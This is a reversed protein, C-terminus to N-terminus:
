TPAVGYVSTALGTARTGLKRAFLERLSHLEAESGVVRKPLYYAFRKSYYLLFFAETEAADVFSDWGLRISSAGGTITVGSDSFEYVQPGQLSPTERWARRLQWRMLWTSAPQLLLLVLAVAALPWLARWDRGLLLILLAVGGMLPWVAWELWAFRQRRRLARSAQVTEAADLIVEYTLPSTM